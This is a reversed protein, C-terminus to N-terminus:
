CQSAGHYTIGSTGKGDEGICPGIIKLLRPRLPNKGLIGGAHLGRQVGALHLCAGQLTPLMRRYSRDGEFILINNKMIM